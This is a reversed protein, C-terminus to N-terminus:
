INNKRPCVHEYMSQIVNVARVDVCTSYSMSVNSRNGSELVMYCQWIIELAQESLLVALM